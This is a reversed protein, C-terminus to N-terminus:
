KSKRGLRGQIRRAFRPTSCEPFYMPALFDPASARRKRQRAQATAATTAPADIALASLSTARAASLL